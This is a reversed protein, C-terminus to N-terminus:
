HAQIKGEKIAVANIARQMIALYKKTPDKRAEQGPVYYKWVLDRIEKPVMYWHRKCMLIAPPVEEDCDIAHCYHGIGRSM